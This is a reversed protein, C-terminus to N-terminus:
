RRRRARAHAPDGRTASPSAEARRVSPIRPLWVGVRDRYARYDDGFRAELDAEEHPQILVNWIVSGCLAYVIVLWSGLVMGVAVGQAIGVVAMPNRVVRYPGAIVLQRPMASPLPTGRGITSMTYASWLGIVTMAVFLIVGAAGFWPPLALHVRWRQEFWVIVAPLVVLFLGWFCVIQAATQALLPIRGTSKAIAFGFPGILLKEGPLRGFTVLAAAFATAAASALMLVAGWGARETLTAYVTMVAAVLLTWPVVAWLAVRVRAAVLASGVVFLPVDFAAVLVPDLGGLTAERVPPLTFVAAWWGAGALAQVAFYWRGLREGM